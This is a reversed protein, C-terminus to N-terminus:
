VVDRYFIDNILGLDRIEKEMRAQATYYINQDLEVDVTGQINRTLSCLCVDYSSVISKIAERMEKDDLADVKIMKREIEERQVLTPHM